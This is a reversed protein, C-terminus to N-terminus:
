RQYIDILDINGCKLETLHSNRKDRKTGTGSQMKHPRGTVCQDGLTSGVRGAVPAPRGAGTEM